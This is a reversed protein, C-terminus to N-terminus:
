IATVAWFLRAPIGAPLHLKYKNSGSLLNGDADKITIPYKSGKNITRMVMAPANSYGIQYFANRQVSM